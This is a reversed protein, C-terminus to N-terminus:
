IARAANPHLKRGQTPQPQQSQQRAFEIRPAGAGQQTLAYVGHKTGEETLIEDLTKFQGHTKGSKIRNGDKDSVFPNGTEDLQIKYNKSIFSIFGEKKLEDIGSPWKYNSWSSEAYQKVKGDKREQEVQNKFGDYESQTSEWSKKYDNAKGELKAYKDQWEKVAEDNGQGAKSELEKFKAKAKSFALEALEEVKKGKLEGAEFEIGAAKAAQKFETEIHGIRKGTVAKVIAEDKEVADRKIFATDFKEKFKDIDTVEKPDLGIYEFVNNIEM